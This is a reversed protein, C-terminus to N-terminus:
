VFYDDSLADYCEFKSDENMWQQVAEEDEIEFCNWKGLDEMIKKEFRYSQQYRYSYRKRWGIFNEDM